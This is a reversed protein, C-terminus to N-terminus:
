LNLSLSLQTFNIRKKSIEISKQVNILKKKKQLNASKQGIVIGPTICLVIWFCYRGDLSRFDMM